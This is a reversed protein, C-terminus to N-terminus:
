GERSDLVLAVRGTAVRAALGAADGAPVLVDVTTLGVDDPGAVSVVRASITDPDVAPPDAQAPPTDVIRVPDGPVLPEAPLQGASLAVGVLSTGEAPVLQDMTSAPTLLSGALLGTAATSGVVEELRAEPVIALVPDPRVDVVRLDTRELVAGRQVDAALAVVPVTDGAAGVLWASTLAGLALLAVGAGIVAPRRRSRPPPRPVSPAPTRVAARSAGVPAARPAASAATTTAAASDGTIHVM